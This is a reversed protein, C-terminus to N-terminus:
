SYSNGKWAVILREEKQIKLRNIEVTETYMNKKIIGYYQKEKM